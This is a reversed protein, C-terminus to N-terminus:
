KAYESDEGRQRRSSGHENECFSRICYLLEEPDPPKRICACIHKSMVQELEPHFSRSSLVMVPLGPNQRRLEKIFRDDVPLSDMDLIVVRCSIDQIIKKLGLLSHLEVVNHNEQKLLACLNKSQNKDADVVLIPRFMLSERGCIKEKTGLTQCEVYNSVHLDHAL